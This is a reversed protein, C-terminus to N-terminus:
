PSPCPPWPTRLLSGSSRIWSRRSSPVYINEMSHDRPFSPADINNQLALPIRSYLDCVELLTPDRLILLRLCQIFQFGFPGYLFPSSVCEGRLRHCCHCQRLISYVM